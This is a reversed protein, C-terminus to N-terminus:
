AAELASHHAMRMMGVMLAGAVFGGIHAGFSVSGSDGVVAHWINPGAFAVVFGLTRPRLVGMVAMVGFIAGSAGVLPTVSNPNVLVHALGGFLGATLYLSLFLFHGIDREVLAGFVILCIMNGGIHAFSSPDHLFMSSFVPGLAGSRMFHAPVLGHARCFADGGVALELLYALLNLAVLTPAVLPLTRDPTSSRTM